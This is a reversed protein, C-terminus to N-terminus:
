LRLLVLSDEADLALPQEHLNGTFMELSDNGLVGLCTFAGGSAEILGAVFAKISSFTRKTEMGLVERVKATHIAVADTHSGSPDITLLDEYFPHTEPFLVLKGLLLSILRNSIITNDVNFRKILTDNKPDLLEVIIHVNPNDIHAELFLLSDIVNADLADSQANPESLLLVTAPTDLANLKEVFDRDRADSLTEATFESGHLDAYLQFTEEIFRKKNNEGVLFVHRAVRESDPTFSLTEAQIAETALTHKSTNDPALVFLSNGKRELPLAHSHRHLCAEFSVDELAYVESNEFSFLELYVDEMAKEIITQAMIQGLRRDFCIALVEVGSTVFRSAITDIKSRTSYDGIEVIVKPKKPLRLRALALTLKIVNLDSREYSEVATEELEKNMVLISEASTISCDALESGSLPDGQKYLVNLRPRHETEPVAELAQRIAREAEWKDTEALILVDVRRSKVHLLDALLEPVKSNWNLVLIHNKLHVKGSTTRKMEFYDKLANTTLAIITGSFLVLGIILVLVALFLTQPQDIELIANPTLMWTVSGLAFADLFGAFSDDILLAIWAAVLLIVVNLALVMLIITLRPHRHTTVSLASRANSIKRRIKKM